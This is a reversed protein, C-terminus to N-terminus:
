VMLLLATAHNYSRVSTIQDAGPPNSNNYITVPKKSFYYYISVCIMMIGIVIAAGKEIPMFIEGQRVWLNVLLYFIM